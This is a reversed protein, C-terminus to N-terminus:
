TITVNTIPCTWSFTKKVLGRGSISIEKNTPAITANLLTIESSGLSLVLDYQAWGTNPLLRMPFTQATSITGSVKMKKADYIYLPTLRRNLLGQSPKSMDYIDTNFPREIKFTVEAYSSYGGVGIGVEYFPVVTASFDVAGVPGSNSITQGVFQANFKVLEGAKASIEIMTIYATNAALGGSTTDDSVSITHSAPVEELMDEILPGIIEPRYAGGFSGQVNSLLGEYMDENGYTDTISNHFIPEKNFTISADTVPIANGDISIGRAM